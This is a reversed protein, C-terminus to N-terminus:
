VKSASRFTQGQMEDALEHKSCHHLQRKTFCININVEAPFSSLRCGLVEPSSSKEMMWAGPPTPSGSLSHRGTLKGKNSFVISYWGVSTRSTTMNAQQKIKLKSNCM